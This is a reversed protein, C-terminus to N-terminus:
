PRRRRPYTAGTSRHRNGATYRVNRGCCLFDLNDSDGGGVVGEHVRWVVDLGARALHHLELENCAVVGHCLRSEVLGASGDAGHHGVDGAEVGAVLGGSRGLLRAHYGSVGDHNIVGLGDPQVAGLALVALIAHNHDDVLLSNSRGCGNGYWLM